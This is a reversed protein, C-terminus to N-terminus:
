KERSFFIAEGPMGIKLSGDNPVSIKVAYVLNVREKRTQITKPTFEAQSAIWCVRGPLKKLGSNEADVVVEANQNLRLAPLQSGDIYVRLFLTDLSAIKFLPKGPFVLESKEVYKELVTGTVPYRILSKDIQENVQAIQVDLADNEAALSERQLSVSAAQKDLVEINGKIDDLQKPTAANGELLKEVRTKELLLNNKQAQLVDLQANVAKRRATLGKKQTMLQQKKLFLQTTDICGAYSGAKGTIGEKPLFDTLTGQGEASVIYEVAEFNGYADSKQRDTSCFSVLCAMSLLLWAKKMNRETQFLYLHYM